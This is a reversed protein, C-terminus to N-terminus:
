TEDTVDFTSTLEDVVRLLAQEPETWLGDAVPMAVAAIEDDSLGARQAFEMHEVWEFNSRCNFAARLALLEHQRHTLVGNLALAAAWGIFPSLLDPQRALLAMTKAPEGNMATLPLLEAADARLEHAEPLPLRGAHANM